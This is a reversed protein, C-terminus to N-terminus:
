SALRIGSRREIEIIFQRLLSIRSNLVSLYEDHLDPRSLAKPWASCTNFRGLLFSERKRRLCDQVRTDWESIAEVPVPNSESKCSSALRSGDSALSLLADRFELGEDQRTYGSELVTIRERLESNTQYSGEVLAVICLVIFVSIWLDLSIGSLVPIATEQQWKIPFLATRILLFLGLLAWSVLLVLAWKSERLLFRVYDLRDSVAAPM